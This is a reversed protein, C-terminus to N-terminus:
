APTLEPASPDSSHHLEYIKAVGGAPSIILVQSASLTNTVAKKVWAEDFAEQHTWGGQPNAIHFGLPHGHEDLVVPKWWGTWDLDPQYVRKPGSDDKFLGVSVEPDRNRILTHQWKIRERFWKKHLLGYHDLKRVERDWNQYDTSERGEHKFGEVAEEVLRFYYPMYIESLNEGEENRRYLVVALVVIFITAAAVFGLSFAGVTSWEM